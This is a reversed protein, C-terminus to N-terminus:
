GLTNQLLHTHLKHDQAQQMHVLPHDVTLLVCTQEHGVGPLQHALQSNQGALGEDESDSGVSVAAEEGNGLGVEVLSACPSCVTTCM